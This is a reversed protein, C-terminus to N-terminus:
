LVLFIIIRGQKVRFDAPTPLNYVVFKAHGKFFDINSILDKLTFNIGMRYGVEAGAKKSKLWVPGHVAKERQIHQKREETKSTTSRYRWALDRLLLEM